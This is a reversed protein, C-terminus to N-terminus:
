TTVVPDTIGAKTKLWAKAAATTSFSAEDNWVGKDAPTALHIVSGQWDLTPHNWEVQKEKTRATHSPRSFRCRHIWRATYGGSAVDRFYYGFGCYPAADDTIHYVKPSTGSSSWGLLKALTEQSVMNLELTGSIGNAGNDFDQLEDDGYDENQSTEVNYVAEVGTGIVFGTQYTISSGETYTNVLAAVPYGMGFINSKGQM